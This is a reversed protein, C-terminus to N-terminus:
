RSTFESIHERLRGGIKQRESLLEDLTSKGVMGRVAARASLQTAVYYEDVNLVAATEDQVQYFVNADVDVPINDQTLGRQLPTTYTIIRKDVRALVRHLLPIYFYLDPGAMYTFKGLFFIAHREWVKAVGFFIV